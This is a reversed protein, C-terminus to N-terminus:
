IAKRFSKITKIIGEKAQVPFEKGLANKIKSNDVVYSETLKNLRETTLPLKFLDGLKALLRILSPNIKWSKPSRDSAKAILKILENTSLAENDAVNYIGSPIDDRELLERIVFCLNEISLFSRKNEFAALPYPIGKSILKYLLNLNGKNGPGHIMCPRLIYFSKGVPLPQSQIYEEAMLKSKGYHTQPAPVDSETLEREVIDASAKASSIFIFKKADSKLFADYLQKTFECNVLYYDEPQSTNKLDHAKGALHIIVDFNLVQPIDMFPQRLSLVHLDYNTLLSLYSILNKGVFGTSGTILIKILNEFKESIATRM